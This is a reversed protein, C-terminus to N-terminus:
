DLLGWRGSPGGGGSMFAATSPAGSSRGAGDGAPGGKFDLIEFGFDGVGGGIACNGGPAAGVLIAVIKHIIVDPLDQKAFLEFSVLYVSCGALRGLWIEM